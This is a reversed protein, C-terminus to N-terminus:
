IHRVKAGGWSRDIMRQEKTPKSGTLYEAM